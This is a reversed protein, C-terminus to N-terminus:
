KKVLDKNSWCQFSSTWHRIGDQSLLWIGAKVNNEPDFVDSNIPEGMRKMTFRFTSSIFQYVGSASSNKNKITPNLGSECNAIKYALDSDVNYKKSYHEILILIFLRETLKDIKAKIQSALSSGESDRAEAVEVGMKPLKAGIGTMIIVLSLVILCWKNLKM